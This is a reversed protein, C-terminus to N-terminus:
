PHKGLDGGSLGQRLGLAVARIAKSTDADQEEAACDEIAAILQEADVVNKRVLQAFLTAFLVGHVSHVLPATVVFSDNLDVPDSM